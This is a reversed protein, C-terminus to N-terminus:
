GAHVREPHTLGLGCVAFVYCCQVMGSVIIFSAVGKVTSLDFLPAAIVQSVLTVPISIWSRRVWARTNNMAWVVSLLNGIAMGMLVLLL